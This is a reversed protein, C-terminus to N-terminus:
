HATVGKKTRVVYDEAGVHGVSISFTTLRSLLRYRSYSCHVYWVGILLFDEGTIRFSKQMKINLPATAPRDPHACDSIYLGELNIIRLALQRDSLERHLWLVGLGSYYLLLGLQHVGNTLSTLTIHRQIPYNIINKM